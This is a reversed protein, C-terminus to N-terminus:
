CSVGAATTNQLMCSVSDECNNCFLEYMQEPHSERLTWMHKLLAKGRIRDTSRSEIMQSCIHFLQGLGFDAAGLGILSNRIVDLREWYPRPDSVDLRADPALVAMIEIFVCGLSFVDSKRNRPESQAVEPACYRKTHAGPFGTTTTNQGSADLAIGFDTYIMQGNHVLINQPKIDKHRITYSHIYALGSSLCGFSRSLISYQEPTPTEGTDESAQLYSKLDGGSAIPSLLMGFDRGCTYSWYVLVVHPHSNVRKMISVENMFAERLSNKSGTYPRYIKHAFKQGNSKDEVIDVVASAGMGLKGVYQFPLLDRSTVDKHEDKKISGESLAAAPLRTDLFVCLASEDLHSDQSPCIKVGSIQHIGISGLVAVLCFANTSPTAFHPIKKTSMWVLMQVIEEIDDLPVWGPRQQKQEPMM